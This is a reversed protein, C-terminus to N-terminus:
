GLVFTELIIVLIGTIAGGAIVGACVPELNRVMAKYGFGDPNKMCRECIWFIFSGLFMAFCTNFPIVFALGIGVGSLWFKGKTKTKIIELVVGLVAGVLAAWRASEALNSLGSTLVEAVAKWISAATMPYQESILGAPNGRLFVFFFVPTAVLAGALIGLVHGIAQQRPKGRL